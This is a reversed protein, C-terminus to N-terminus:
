ISSPNIVNNSFRQKDSLHVRVVKVGPLRVDLNGVHRRVEVGLLVFFAMCVEFPVVVQTAEHVLRRESLFPFGLPSTSSCYLRLVM